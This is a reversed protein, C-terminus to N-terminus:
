EPEEEEDDELNPDDFGAIQLLGKVLTRGLDLTGFLNQLDQAQDGDPAFRSVSAISGQAQSLHNDILRLHFVWEDKHKV